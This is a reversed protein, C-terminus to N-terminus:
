CGNDFYTYKKAIKLFILFLKLPLYKFSYLIKFCYYYSKIIFTEATAYWNSIVDLVLMLIAGKRLYLKEM